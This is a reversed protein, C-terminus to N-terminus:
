KFFDEVNLLSFTEILKKDNENQWVNKSYLANSLCTIILPFHINRPEVRVCKFGASLTMAKYWIDDADYAFNLFRRDNVLKNISERLYCIGSCGTPLLDFSPEVSFKNQNISQNYNYSGEAYTLNHGRYCSVSGHKKTTQILAQAWRRPYMIDDDATIIFKINNHKKLVDEIYSLKKYSRINEKLIKVTLGANIYRPLSDPLGGYKDIDEQSIWLYINSPKVSQNFLSELTLYLTNFREHYSTLTIIYESNQSVCQNRNLRCFIARLHLKITSFLCKLLFIIKNFIITM